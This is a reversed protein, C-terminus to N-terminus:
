DNWVNIIDGQANRYVVYAIDDAGHTFVHITRHFTEGNFVFSVPWLGPSWLLMSAEASFVRAKNDPTVGTQIVM